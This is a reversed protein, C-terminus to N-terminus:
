IAGKISNQHFECVVDENHVVEGRSSQSVISSPDPLALMKFRLIKVMKNGHFSIYIILSVIILCLIVVLLVVFYTVPTRFSMMITGHVYKSLTYNSIWVYILYPALSCCVVAILFLATWHRVHM